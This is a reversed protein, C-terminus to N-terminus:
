QLHLNIAELVGRLNSSVENNWFRLVKFGGAELVQTRAEDYARAADEAHQSGDLEVILRAEFCVFDVIYGAIPWQRRFKANLFRGRLARWLRHETPTQDRRLERARLTGRTVNRTAM